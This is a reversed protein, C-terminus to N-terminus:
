WGEALTSEITAQTRPKGEPILHLEEAIDVPIFFKFETLQYFRRWCERAFVRAANDQGGHALHARSVDSGPGLIRSDGKWCQKPNDTWVSYCDPVFEKVMSSEWGLDPVRTHVWNSSSQGGRGKGKGKRRRGLGKKLRDSLGGPGFRNTLITKRLAKLNTLYEKTRTDSEKLEKVHARVADGEEKPLDDALEELMDHDVGHLVEKGMAAARESLAYLAQEETLGAKDFFMFLIQWLDKGKTDPFDTYCNKAVLEIVNAAIGKFAVSILSDLLPRATGCEQCLLEYVLFKFM